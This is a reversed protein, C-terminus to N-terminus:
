REGYSAMYMSCKQSRMSSTPHCAKTCTRKVQMASPTPLIYRDSERGSFQVSRATRLINHTDQNGRNVKVCSRTVPIWSRVCLLSHCHQRAALVLTPGGSVCAPERRVGGRLLLTPGLTHSNRPGHYKDGVDDHMKSEGFRRNRGSVGGGDKCKQECTRSDEDQLTGESRILQM